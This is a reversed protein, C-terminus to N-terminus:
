FLVQLGRPLRLVTFVVLNLLVRTDYARWAAHTIRISCGYELVATSSRSRHGVQDHVDHWADIQIRIGIDIDRKLPLNNKDVTTRTAATAVEIAFSSAGDLGFTTKIKTSSM